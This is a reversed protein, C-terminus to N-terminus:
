RIAYQTPTQNELNLHIYKIMEENAGGERAIDIVNMEDDRANDWATKHSKQSLEAFDLDKNEEISYMLCEVHSQAM